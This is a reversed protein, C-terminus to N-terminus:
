VRAGIRVLNHAMVGWGVWICTGRHGRMRSRRLGYKRKLLSISAECGARWRCLRRFWGQKEYEQRSKSRKGRYPIAIKQVGQRRLEEEKTKDSFGRDAALEQPPRGFSQWHREVVDGLLENDPLNETLVRYDVIVDNEAEALLVKYGFECPEKLQAGPM